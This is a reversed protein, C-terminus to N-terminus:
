AQALERGDSVSCGVSLLPAIAVGELVEDLLNLCVLMCLVPALARWNVLMLCPAENM